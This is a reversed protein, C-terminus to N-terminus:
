GGGRKLIDSSSEIKTTGGADFVMEIDYEKCVDAEPVNEEKDRDGGNTFILEDDPYMLRLLKLTESVPLDDRDISLMVKDVYRIAKVVEMRCNENMIIKNKKLMQQDDNNVIVLLEDGMDRSSKLYKLHGHHFPNFHGSAIIIRKM